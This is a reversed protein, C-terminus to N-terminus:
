TNVAHHHCFLRKPLFDTIPTSFLKEKTFFFSTTFYVLFDSAIFVWNLDAKPPFKSLGKYQSVFVMQNAPPLSQM